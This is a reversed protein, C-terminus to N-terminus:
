LIPSLPLFYLIITIVCGLSLCLLIGWFRKFRPQKYFSYFWVVPICKLFRETLAQNRVAAQLEDIGCSGTPITFPVHTVDNALVGYVLYRMLLFWFVSSIAWILVYTILFDSAPFTTQLHSRVAILSFLVTAFGIILRSNGM